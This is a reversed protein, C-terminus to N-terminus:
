RLGFLFYIYKQGKPLSSIDPRADMAPSSLTKSEDKEKTVTLKRVKDTMETEISKRETSRPIEFDSEHIEFHSLDEDIEMADDSDESVELTVVNPPGSSDSQQGSSDSESNDTKNSDQSRASPTLDDPVIEFDEDQEADLLESFSVVKRLATTKLAEYDLSESESDKEQHPFFETAEVPVTTFEADEEKTDIKIKKRKKLPTIEENKRKANSKVIKTPIVSPSV